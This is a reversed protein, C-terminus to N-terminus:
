GNAQPKAAFLAPNLEVKAQTRQNKLWERLIRVKKTAAAQERLSEKEQDFNTMDPVERDKLAVVYYGRGVKYVKSAVPSEKTLTFLEQQLEPAVGIRPLAEQGKLIWPTERREPKSSKQEQSAVDDESATLAEIKQGGHLQALLAEARRQAAAEASRERLMLEAVEAKAEDFTRQTSEKVEMVQILHLGMPTRVPDATIEKAKMAFVADDVAKVLQGRKIWGMDGGKDATATDESQAKALAAFDAGGEVQARLETLMTRAKAVEADSADPALKRVIQRAMVQPPTRFNMMDQNYRAEVAKADTTLLKEVEAATPKPQGLTDIDFKVYSAMVKDHEHMFNDKLEGESVGVNEMVVEAMKQAMIEGRTNEEFQRVSCQFVRRVWDDYQQYNANDVGYNKKLFDLLEADSVKFGRREAEETLLRREILQDIVQGRMGFREAMQDDFAFGSQEANRRMYDMQRGYALAFDQQRIVDGNVTAAWNGDAAHQTKACSASGPGFNFAFILIIGSFVVYILYSQRRMLDLMTAIYRPTHGDNLVEKCVLGAKHFFLRM